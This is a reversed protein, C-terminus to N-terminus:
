RPAPPVPRAWPAGVDGGGEEAVRGGFRVFAPHPAIKGAM